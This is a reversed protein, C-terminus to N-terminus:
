ARHDSSSRDRRVSVRKGQITATRLASIIQTALAAPVEVISHSDAIQIAGIARASIGVENAIAGVLDAPRVRDRRGAGIYLRAVKWDPAAPERRAGRAPATPVNRGRAPAAPTAPRGPSPIEVNDAPRERLDAQKVAAAAVDMVDFEAALSEVVVRYTDLEGALITERLNARTLELRRSRLDAVTPVTATHITQKTLREINKLLRHERPEALTIAVGKDGARGTRGIRHVYSEAASPVDYNVVHSVHRVDLGRAAVDTAILLDATHARFKKMVRDRQAQNLGGHLAEAQFGRANLTETLEDVETRTRCFVIASRPHEIDLIRGLAAMKHARSVIYAVQRV